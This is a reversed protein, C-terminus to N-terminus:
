IIEKKLDKIRKVRIIEEIPLSYNKKGNLLLSITKKGCLHAIVLAMSNIGIVIKARIIDQLIDQNSSKEIELQGVYESLFNDYKDIKEAPHYRIIIRRNLKERSFFNLMEKLIDFETFSINNRDKLYNLRSSIPESVFLINEAIRPKKTVRMRKYNDRIEKFYLNPIFKIIIKKFFRKALKYAYKDGVWIEDPLNNKWTRRPYGFRERYFTWHDLYSVTKIGKKRAAKVFDLELSSAWGTGTLVMQLNKIQSLLRIPSKKTSIIYKALKKRKFIKEAPGAVICVFNYDASHRKIYASIIEAGGADHCVVLIKRKNKM